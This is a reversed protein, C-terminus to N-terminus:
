HKAKMQELLYGKQHMNRNKKKLTAKTCLNKNHASSKNPINIINM